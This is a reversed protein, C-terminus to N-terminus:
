KQIFVVVVEDPYDPDYLYYIVADEKDDYVSYGFFFYDHSSTDLEEKRGDSYNIVIDLCDIVVYHLFGDEEEKAKKELSRQKHKSLGSNSCYEEVYNMADTDYLMKYELTSIDDGEKLKATGDDEFSFSCKKDIEGEYYYYWKEDIYVYTYDGDKEFREGYEGYEDDEDESGEDLDEDSDKDKDSDKDSDKNESDNDDRNDESAVKSDSDTSSSSGFIFYSFVGILALVLAVTVSIGAILLGKGSKQPGSQQGPMGPYGPQGPYRPQGSQQFRPQGQQWLYSTQGPQQYGHQNYPQNRQQNYQQNFQNNQDNYSQSNPQHMGFNFQNGYQQGNPRGMGSNFQNNYQHNNQPSGQGWM